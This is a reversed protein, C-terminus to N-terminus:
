LYIQKGGDFKTPTKAGDLDNAHCIVMSVSLKVFPNHAWFEFM